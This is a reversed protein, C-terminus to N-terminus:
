DRRPGAIDCWRSEQGQTSPSRPRPQDGQQEQGADASGAGGDPARYSRSRGAIETASRLALEAHARIMGQDQVLNMPECARQTIDGSECKGAYCIQGHAASLQ